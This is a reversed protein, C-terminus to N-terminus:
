AVNRLDSSANRDPQMYSLMRKHPDLNGFQMNLSDIAGKFFERWIDVRNDNMLFPAAEMLAGFLLADPCNSTYWNTTASDSLATEKKWYTCSLNGGATWTPAVVITSGLLTYLWPVGAGSEKDIRDPPVYQLEAGTSIKVNAMQLFGTPLTGTAAGASVAVTSTTLLQSVRLARAIRHECNAIFTPITATLDDRHLYTAVETKLSSYDTIAM